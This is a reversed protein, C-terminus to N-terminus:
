LRDRNDLHIRFPVSTYVQHLRILVFHL